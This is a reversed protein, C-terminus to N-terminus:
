KKKLLRGKIYFMVSAWGLSFLVTLVIKVYPNSFFCIVVLFVFLHWLYVEYSIKGFYLLIKPAGTIMRSSIILLPIFLIVLVMDVFTQLYTSKIDWFAIKNYEIWVKTIYLIIFVFPILKSFFLYSFQLKSLWNLIEDWFLGLLFASTSVYWCTAIDFAVSLLVFVVYSLVWFWKHKLNFFRVWIYFFLYIVIIEIVYWLSGNSLKIGLCGLLIDVPNMQGNKFCLFLTYSSEAVFFPLYIQFFKRGLFGVIYQKKNKVSFVLGYASYFFFVSVWLNGPFLKKVLFPCDVIIHSMMIFLSAIGKIILSTNKSLFSTIIYKDNYIKKVANGM